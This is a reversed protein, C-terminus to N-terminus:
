CVLMKKMFSVIKMTHKKMDGDSINYREMFNDMSFQYKLPCSSSVNAAYCSGRCVECHKCGICEAPITKNSAIYNIINREIDETADGIKGLHYDLDFNCPTIKKDYLVNIRESGAKCRGNKGIYQMFNPLALIWNDHSLVEEFLKSMLMPSVVPKDIRPFLVLPADMEDFEKLGGLNMEWFSVRYYYDISEKELIKASSLVKDWVGEGRLFDTAKKGMDTSLQVGNVGKLMGVNNKEIFMGNTSLTIQPFLNLAEKLYPYLLPEGGLFTTRKNEIHDYIWLLDEYSLTYNGDPRYCYKCSLNCKSTLYITLEDKKM